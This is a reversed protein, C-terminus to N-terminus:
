LPNVRSIRRIHTDCTVGGADATTCEFAYYVLADRLSLTQRTAHLLTGNAKLETYFLMGDGSNTYRKIEVTYFGTTGNLPTGSINSDALVRVNGAGFPASDAYIRIRKNGAGVLQGGLFVMEWDGNELGHTWLNNGVIIQAAAGATSAVQTNLNSDLSGVMFGQFQAGANSFGFDHSIMGESHLHGGTFRSYAGKASIGLASIRQVLGSSGAPTNASMPAKSGEPYLRLQSPVRLHGSPVGFVMGYGPLQNLEEAMAWWRYLRAVHRYDTGLLPGNPEHWFYTYETGIKTSVDPHTLIVTGLGVAEVEIIDGVIRVLITFKEGMPLFKGDEDWRYAGGVNARNLPTLNTSPYLTASTIGERTWNIHIPASTNIAGIDGGDSVMPQESISINGGGDNVATLYVSTRELELVLGMSFTGGGPTAARNQLYYLTDGGCELARASVTPVTAGVQRVRYAYGSGIEPLSSNATIVAAEAYRDERDFRDLFGISTSQAGLAERFAAPDTIGRGDGSVGGGSQVFGKGQLFSM